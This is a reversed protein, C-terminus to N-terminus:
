SGLAPVLVVKGTTRRRELAAHAAAAEALPFAQVVPAFRGAAAEALARAEVARVGGSRRAVHPGVAVTVSLAREFLDVTSVETPEGSSTGFMVVRGGPAVLELASRGVAGGVGDLVVGVERGGLAIRVRDEWGPERYDVAVAAGSRLVTRRKEGCGAAGVVFAGSRAAGQVLLHGVAGAAATVLVVDDPRLAAADLVGVATAGTCVMAVAAELSLGDPVVHVADVERVAWEAYGGFAFGLQAVVRRGVWDAPVGAGVADVVGAVESGPVLPPEPRWPGDGRRVLTDVFRVGAARVAIRVQGPGPRPDEVEAPELADAPGFGRLRIARM